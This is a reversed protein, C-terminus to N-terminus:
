EVGAVMVAAMVAAMVVAMVVGAAVARKLSGLSCEQLCYQEAVAAVM